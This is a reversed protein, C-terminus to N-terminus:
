YGRIEKSLAKLSIETYKKEGAPKGSFTMPM